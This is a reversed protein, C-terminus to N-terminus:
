TRDGSGNFNLYPTPRRRERDVVYLPGSQDGIFLRDSDPEEVLFNGRAVQSRADRATLDGTLPLEVFDALEAELERPGSQALAGIGGVALALALASHWTTNM